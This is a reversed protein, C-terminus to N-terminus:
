GCLALQGAHSVGSRGGFAFCALICAWQEKRCWYNRSAPLCFGLIAAPQRSLSARLIRGQLRSLVAQTFRDFVASQLTVQVPLIGPCVASLTM